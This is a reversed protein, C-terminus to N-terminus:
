AEPGASPYRRQTTPRSWLVVAHLLGPHLRLRKSVKAILPTYKSKNEAMKVASYGGRKKSKGSRWLLKFGEGLPRDTFHLSGNSGRYKYIEAHVSLPLVLLLGLLM